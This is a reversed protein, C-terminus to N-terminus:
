NSMVSGMQTIDLVRLESDRMGMRDQGGFLLVSADHNITTTTAPLPPALVATHGVRYGLDSLLPGPKWEWTETDM